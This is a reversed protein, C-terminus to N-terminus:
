KAMMGQSIWKKSVDGSNLIYGNETEEFKVNVILGSLVGAVSETLAFCGIDGMLETPDTHYNAISRLYLNVQVNLRTGLDVLECRNRAIYNSIEFLTETDLWEKPSFCNYLQLFNDYSEVENVPTKMEDIIKKANDM